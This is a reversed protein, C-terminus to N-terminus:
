WISIWQREGRLSSWKECQDPELRLLRRCGSARGHERTGHVLGLHEVTLRAITRLERSIAGAIARTSGIPRARHLNASSGISAVGSARHGQANAQSNKQTEREGDDDDEGPGYRRVRPASRGRRASRLEPPARRVCAVEGSAVVRARLPEEGVGRAELPRRPEGKRRRARDEREYLATQLCRRRGNGRGIRNPRSSAPRQAHLRVVRWPGSEAAFSPPLAPRKRASRARFPNKAVEELGLLPPIQHTEIYGCSRDNENRGQDELHESRNPHLPIGARGRLLLPQLQPEDPQERQDAGGDHQGDKMLRRRRTRRACLLLDVARRRAGFGRRAM